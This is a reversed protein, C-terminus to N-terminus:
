VCPACKREESFPNTAKPARAAWMGGPLPAREGSGRAGKVALLYPDQCQPLVESVGHIKWQSVMAAMAAYEKGKLPQLEKQVLKLEVRHVPHPAGTVSVRARLREGLAWVDTLADHCTRLYDIERVTGQVKGSAQGGNHQDGVGGSEM